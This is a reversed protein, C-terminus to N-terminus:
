GHMAVRASGKEMSEADAHRQRPQLRNGNPRLRGAGRRTGVFSRQPEAHQEGAVAEVPVMPPGLAGAFLQLESLHERRQGVETLLQYEDLAQVVLLRQLSVNVARLGAVQEGARRESRAALDARAHADVLQQRSAVSAAGFHGAEHEAALLGVRRHM